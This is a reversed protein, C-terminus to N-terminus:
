DSTRRTFLAFRPAEFLGERDLADLDVWPPRGCRPQRCCHAPNLGSAFVISNFGVTVGYGHGGPSVAFALLRPLTCRLVYDEKPRPLACPNRPRKRDTKRYGSRGSM